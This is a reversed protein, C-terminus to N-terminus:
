AISRRYISDSVDFLDKIIATDGRHSVLDMEMFGPKTDDWEHWTRVPISKKLLTGPKTTFIGKPSTYGAKKLCRDITFQSM